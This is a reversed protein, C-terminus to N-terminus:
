GELEAALTKGATTLCFSYDDGQVGKVELCQQQRLHRFIPELVATPLKLRRRLSRLSSLGEERVSRLFLDQVLATSIDLDAPNEPIAPRFVVPEPNSLLITLAINGRPVLSRCQPPLNWM